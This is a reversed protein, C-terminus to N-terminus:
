FIQSLCLTERCTPSKRLCGLPPGVREFTFNISNGKKEYNSNKERFISVKFFIVLQFSVLCKFTNCDPKSTSQKTKRTQNLLILILLGVIVNLFFVFSPLFIDLYDQNFSSQCLHITSCYVSDCINLNRKHFMYSPM